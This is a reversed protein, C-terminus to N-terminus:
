ANSAVFDVVVADGGVGDVDLELGLGVPVDVAYGACAVVFVEDFFVAGGGVVGPCRQGFCAESADEEYAVDVAVRLGVVEGAGNFCLAGDAYGDVGLELFGATRLAVGDVVYEGVVAEGYFSFGGCFAVGEAVVVGAGAVLALVEYDGVSM